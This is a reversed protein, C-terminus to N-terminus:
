RKVGELQNQVKRRWYMRAMKSAERKTAEPHEHMYRATKYAVYHNRIEITFSGVLVKEGDKTYAYM